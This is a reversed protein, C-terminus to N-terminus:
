LRFSKQQRRLTQTQHLCQSNRLQHHFQIETNSSLHESKVATREVLIDWKWDRLQDLKAVTVAVMMAAKKGVTLSVKMAAKPVALYDVTLVAMLAVTQAALYDAKSNEALSEVWSAVMSDAM